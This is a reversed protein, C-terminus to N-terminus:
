VEYTITVWGRNYGTDNWSIGTFAGGAVRELIVVTSTIRQVGFGGVATNGTHNGLTYYNLDDDDRITVNIMRIDKYQGAALLHSVNKNITSDMNWDGIEIVKTLLSIGGTTTFTTGPNAKWSAATPSDASLIWGATPAVVSIDLLNIEATSTTLGDLINLETTTVGSVAIKGSGNSIVARNLALDTSVVTSIAGSVSGIKSDIQAQLNGTVDSLYGVQASTVGSLTTLFGSGDSVVASSADPLAALKTVTIGASASIDGDVIINPTLTIVGTNNITADGSMSRSVALNSTDGIYLTGNALTNYVPTFSGNGPILHRTGSITWSGSAVTANLRVNGGLLTASMVIPSTDGIDSDGVEGTHELSSGDWHAQLSGTRSNTGDYIVYYWRAAFATSALFSDIIQDSAVNVQSFDTGGGDPGTDGAIGQPGQPGINLVPIAVTPLSPVVPFDNIESVDILCEYINNVQLNTLYDKFGVAKLYYRITAAQDLIKDRKSAKRTDALEEALDMLKTNAAYEIAQYNPNLIAM